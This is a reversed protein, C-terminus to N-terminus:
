HNSSLGDMIEAVQNGVLPKFRSLDGRVWSLVVTSDTWANTYELPVGLIKGCDLLLKTFLLTGCLQPISLCKIPAVKMKAIVLGTHSIFSQVHVDM